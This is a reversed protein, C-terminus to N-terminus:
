AIYYINAQRKVKTWPKKEWTKKVLSAISCKRVQDGEEHDSICRRYPAATSNYLQYEVVCAQEEVEVDWVISPM